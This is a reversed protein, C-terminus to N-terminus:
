AKPWANLARNLVFAVGKSGGDAQQKKITDKLTVEIEPTWKVKGESLVRELHYAEGVSKLKKMFGIPNEIPNILNCKFSQTNSRNSSVAPNFSVLM